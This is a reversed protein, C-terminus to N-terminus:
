TFRPCQQPQRRCLTCCYVAYYRMLYGGVCPSSSPLSSSGTPSYRACRSPSFGMPTYATYSAHSCRCYTPYERFMTRATLTLLV